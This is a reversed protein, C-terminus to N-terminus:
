KPSLKIIFNSGPSLVELLVAPTDLSSLDAQANAQRILAKAPCEQPLGPIWLEEPPCRLSIRILMSTQTKASCVHLTTPFARTRGM